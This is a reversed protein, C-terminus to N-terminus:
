TGEEKIKLLYSLRAPVAYAYWSCSIKTGVLSPAQWCTMLVNGEPGSNWEEAKRDELATLTPPVPCFMLQSIATLDNQM